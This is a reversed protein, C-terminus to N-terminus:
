EPWNTGGFEVEDAERCRGAVVGVEGAPELRREISLRGRRLPSAGKTRM